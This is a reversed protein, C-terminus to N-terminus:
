QVILLQGCSSFRSVYAAGLAFLLNLVIRQPRRLALNWTFIIPMIYMITDNVIMIIANAYFFSLINVCHGTFAPHWLKNPPICQFLVVIVSSTGFCFAVCVMAWIAWRHCREYTTRLYFILLGFKVFM